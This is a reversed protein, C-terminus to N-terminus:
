SIFPVIGIINYLIGTFQSGTIVMLIFLSCVAFAFHEIRHKNKYKHAFCTVRLFSASCEVHMNKFEYRSSKAIICLRCYMSSSLSLKFSNIEINKNCGVIYKLYPFVMRNVEDGYLWIIIFEAARLYMWDGWTPNVIRNAYFAINLVGFRSLMLRPRVAVNQYKTDVDFKSTGRRKCVM